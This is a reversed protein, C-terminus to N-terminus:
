QAVVTITEAGTIPCISDKTPMFGCKEYFKFTKTNEKLVDLYISGKEQKAYEVLSKGIGVGQYDPHVVIGGVTKEFLSIFGAIKGNNVYVWTKAKPLYSERLDASISKIMADSISNYTKVAATAWLEIIEEIDASSYERIM